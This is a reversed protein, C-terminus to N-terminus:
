TKLRLKEAIKIFDVLTKAGMKRMANGRYIKVTIESLGLAFAIQKNLRGAAVAEMVQKERPSLLAHRASLAAHEDREARDIADQAFLSTMAALVDQGQLPEPLFECTDAKMRRLTMSVLGHDTMAIVPVAVGAETLRPQRSPASSDKSRIDLVLCGAADAQTSAVFVAASGLKRKEYGLSRFATDVAGIFSAPASGSVPQLSQM